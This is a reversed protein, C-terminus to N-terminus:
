LSGALQRYDVKGNANLPLQEVRRFQFASAHLKLKSSLERGYEAFLEADGQECFLILKEGASLVATPGHPRMMDEIEDMNLRLGFVKADRKQRGSLYLFGEDDLYGADGTHLCGALTDGLALDARNLAYGMMVNPGSYVVEGTGGPGVTLGAESRISLSGGPIAQGASGPKEVLRDAPVVAIRATAETQGYMVFMRGGRAAIMSHFQVVLDPHLKGGAQTLTTLSPLKEFVLRRLIQYSYPVGSFTTCRYKRFAEWFLPAISSEHTLIIEAGAALHSNVVSLGYSYHIPLSTIPREQATIALAQRISHANHEINSRTLRVFKPTGTSGSTSLLLALDPHIEGQPTVCRRGLHIAPHEGITSFDYSDVLREPNSPCILLDPTYLAILRQQFVPSLAANLLAVAHGAEILALYALITAADNRCFLFALQKRSTKLSAAIGEVASELQVRSWHRGSGADTIAPIEPQAPRSPLLLM